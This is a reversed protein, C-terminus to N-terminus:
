GSEIITCTCRYQEKYGGQFDELKGKLGLDSSVKKIAAKM